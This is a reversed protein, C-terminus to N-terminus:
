ICYFMTYLLGAYFSTLSIAFDTEIAMTKLLLILRKFPFNYNSFVTHGKVGQCHSHKVAHIQETYMNRLTNTNSNENANDHNHKSRFKILVSIMM